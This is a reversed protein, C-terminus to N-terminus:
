FSTSIGFKLRQLIDYDEKLFPIAYDVRLPGFPSAWIVSAGAAARWNMDTSGPEKNKTGKVENGYLTGTDLFFGGRFGADPSIGPIPFTVEASATFYTTGGLPDENKKMRGGIGTNSFGRIDNSDMQFQDFVNLHNGTTSLMHGASAGASAVIDQEDSVTYYGRVKGSLKYFDSDGGLGALEQTASAIIGEHPLVQTDLTNYNVSNSVSSILWPSGNVVHRYPMSLAKENDSTYDVEKYNYKLSTTLDNTIPATVRLTFGQEQYSYNDYMENETRFLDFGAALRYGLFYPETFSISYNRTVAGGSAAVRIYQGRGLFNKEEVSAELIFGEGGTAYGAGIGFNGTPQDVVDVIVVVRDPASGPMTTVNVTSFYGL